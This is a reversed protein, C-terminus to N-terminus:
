YDFSCLIPVMLSKERRLRKFAVASDATNAAVPPRAKPEVRVFTFVTTPRGVLEVIAKLKIAPVDALAYTSYPYLAVVRVIFLATVWSEESAGFIM